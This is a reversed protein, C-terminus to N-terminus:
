LLECVPSRSGLRLRTCGLQHAQNSLRAPRKFMRSGDGSSVGIACGVGVEVMKTSLLGCVRCARQACASIAMEHPRLGFAAVVMGGAAMQVFRIFTGEHELVTAVVLQVAKQARMLNAYSRYETALRLVMVTCEVLECRPEVYLGRSRKSKETGAVYDILQM